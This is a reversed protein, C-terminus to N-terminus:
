PVGVSLKDTTGTTITVQTSGPALKVDFASPRIMRAVPVPPRDLLLAVERGAADIIRLDEQQPGSPM